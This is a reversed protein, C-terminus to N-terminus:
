ATALATADSPAPTVGTILAAAKAGIMTIAANPNASVITPM